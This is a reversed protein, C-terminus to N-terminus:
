TMLNLELKFGNLGSNLVGVVCYGNHSLFYWFEFIESIYIHGTV